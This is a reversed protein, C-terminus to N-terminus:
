FCWHSILLLLSLPGFFSLLTELRRGSAVTRGVAQWVGWASRYFLRTLRVKRTVRRPLVITEFEEWLVIVILVAGVLATAIAM